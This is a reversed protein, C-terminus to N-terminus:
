YIITRDKHFFQVWGTYFLGTPQGNVLFEKEFCGVAISNYNPNIMAKYHSPSNKWAEMVEEATDYGVGLKM